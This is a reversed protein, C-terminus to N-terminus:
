EECEIVISRTVQNGLLDRTKDKSIIRYHPCVEHAKDELNQDRDFLGDLYINRHTIQIEYRGKDLPTVLHSVTCGAISLIILALLLKKM